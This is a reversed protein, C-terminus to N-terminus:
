TTITETKVAEYLISRRGNNDSCARIVTIIKEQIKSPLVDGFIFKYGGSRNGLQEKIAERLDSPTSKEHIVVITGTAAGTEKSINQTNM